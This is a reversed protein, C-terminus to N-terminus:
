APDGTQANSFLPHQLTQIVSIFNKGSIFAAGISGESVQQGALVIEDMSVSLSNPRLKHVIQKLSSREAPSVTQCFIILDPSFTTILRELVKPSSAPSVHFGAQQLMAARTYNLMEDYGYLVITSGKQM